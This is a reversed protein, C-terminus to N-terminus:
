ALEVKQTQANSTPQTPAQIKVVEELRRSLQIEEKERRMRTKTRSALTRLVALEALLLDKKPGKPWEPPTTQLIVQWDGREGNM